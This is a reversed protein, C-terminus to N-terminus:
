KNRAKALVLLFWLCVAAQLPIGILFLLWLNANNACVYITALMIWIFVSLLAFKAWRKGWIATLIFAVLVGIPLAVVFSLWAKPAGSLMLCVFVITALFWVLIVSLWTIIAKSLSIRRTLRIKNPSPKTVMFDLSVNFLDAMKKLVVIDPVAEGREWKSVAKDSYNIREALQAQTLGAKKRLLVINEAVIENINEMEKIIAVFEM